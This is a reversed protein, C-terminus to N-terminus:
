LIPIDQVEPPETRTRELREVCYDILARVALLLERLAETLRDALEPPVLDRVSRLVQSLLELDRDEEVSGSRLRGGIRAAAQEGAEALLREAAASARELRAELDRLAAHTSEDTWRDPM